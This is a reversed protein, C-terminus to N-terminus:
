AEPAAGPEALTPEQIGALQDVLAGLSDVAEFDLQELALPVGLQEEVAMLLDVFALSDILGSGLVDTDDTIEAPDRGARRARDALGAVVVARIDDRAASV